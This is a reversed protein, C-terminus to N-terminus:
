SIQQLGSARKEKSPICNKIIKWLSGSNNKNVQVENHIYDREANKLTAKVLKSAEKFKNWDDIRRTDLFIRHLLDRSKMHDKIEQTVYPCPRSRIKLTKIPAHAQLTSQIAEDFITLKTNVDIGNFISLLSASKSALDTTFELLYSPSHLRMLYAYVLRGM